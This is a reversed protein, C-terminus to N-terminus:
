YDVRMFFLGQPPATRGTARRDRAYLWNDWSDPSFRGQYIDVSSGVIIRVMNYIFRNAKIRFRYFPDEKCWQLSEVDCRHHPSRSGAACFSTFDHMGKLAQLPENISLFDDTIRLEWCFGHYMATKGPFIRYEYSRSRASFRANFSPDAEEVWHVAIERSLIGNLQYCIRSTDVPQASKFGVIQGLAHVGADTRGAAIVTIPEKLLIMLARELELQVTPENLQKQWGSFARGDYELEMKYNYM